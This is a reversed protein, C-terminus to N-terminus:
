RWLIIWRRYIMNMPLESNVMVPECASPQNSIFTDWLVDRQPELHFITNLRKQVIVKQIAKPDTLHTIAEIASLNISQNVNAQNQFALIPAFKEANRAHLEILDM